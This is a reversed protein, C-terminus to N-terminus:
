RPEAGSPDPDPESVDPLGMAALFESRVFDQLADRLSRHTTVGDLRV